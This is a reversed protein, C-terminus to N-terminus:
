VEDCGGSHLQTVNVEISVRKVKGAGVPRKCVIPNKLLWIIDGDGIAKIQFEEDEM